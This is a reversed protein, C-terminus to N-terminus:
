ISQTFAPEANFLIRWSRPAYDDCSPVAIHWCRCVLGHKAAALYDLVPKKTRLLTTLDGKPSHRKSCKPACEGFPWQALQSDHGTGSLVYKSIM